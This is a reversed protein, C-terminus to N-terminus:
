ETLINTLLLCWPHRHVVTDITKSFGIQTICHINMLALAASEPKKTAPRLWTSKFDVCHAVGDSVKQMHLQITRSVPQKSLIWPWATLQVVLVPKERTSGSTGGFSFKRHNYGLLCRHRTKLAQHSTTKIYAFPVADHYGPHCIIFDYNCLQM